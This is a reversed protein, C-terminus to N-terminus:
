YNGCCIQAFHSCKVCSPRPFSFNLPQVFTFCVFFSFLFFCYFLWELIKKLQDHYCSVPFLYCSHPIIPMIIYIFSYEKCICCVVGEELIPTLNLDINYYRTEGSITWINRINEGRARQDADPWPRRSPSVVSKSRISLPFLAVAQCGSCVPCYLQFHLGAFNECNGSRLLGPVSVCLNYCVLPKLFRHQDNDDTFNTNIQTGIERM